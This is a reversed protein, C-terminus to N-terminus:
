SSFTHSDIHLIFDVLNDDQALNFKKRLRYRATKVSEPSIGLIKAAEKMNMNLKLLACLKLDGNTLEPCRRKLQKFFDAHVNEFQLKFDEWEKDVQYSNEVIKHIGAIKKTTESDNPTISQLNRKLEEMLESKQVFNITYSALERSKFNIEKQLEEERLAANEIKKQQLEREMEYLQQKKKVRFRLFAGVCLVVLFVSVLSVIMINKAFREADKEKELRIIDTEKKNVEYLTQLEALQKSKTENFISDNYETKRKYWALANKHDNKATYLDYFRQYVGAKNASGIENAIKLNSRILSEARDFQKQGIYIGARTDNIEILGWKDGVKEKLEEAEDLYRLATAYDGTLKYVNGLNTLSTSVGLLENQARKEELSILFYRIAEDYKKTDQYVLGMNNIAKARMMKNGEKDAVEQCRRYFELARDYEKQDYYVLGVNLLISMIAFQNKTKEALELSRLFFELSRPFDAKRSYVMGLGNYLALYTQDGRTRSSDLVYLGKEYAEISLGYDGRIDYCMGIIAYGAAISRYANIKKALDISARAYLEAETASNYVTKYALDHFEKIQVTDPLGQLQKKVSDVRQQQAWLSHLSLLFIATLFRKM